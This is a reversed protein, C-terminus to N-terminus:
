STLRPVLGAALRRLRRWGGRPPIAVNLREAREGGLERKYRFEGPGLDYRVLGRDIADAISALEVVIGPSLRSWDPHNGGNYFHAVQPGDLRITVAIRAGDVNLEFVRLAEDLEALMAALRDDVHPHEEGKASARLRHLRVFDRVAGARESGPVERAVAGDREARRLKGKLGKRTGSSRQALYEDFSGPLRVEPWAVTSSSGPPLLSGLERPLGRAEVAGRRGMALLARWADAERGRRCLLRRESTVPQGAFAIRGWRLREVLGLALTKGDEHVRLLGLRSRRYARQWAILWDLSLYPGAGDEARLAEWESRIGELGSPPLDELQAVASGAM